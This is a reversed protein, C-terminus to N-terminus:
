NEIRQTKKKTGVEPPVQGVFKSDLGIRRFISRLAEGDPVQDTFEMYVIDHNTDVKYRLGLIAELELALGMMKEPTRVGAAYVEVEVMHLHNGGSASFALRNRLIKGHRIGISEPVNREPDRYYGTLFRLFGGSSKFDHFDSIGAVPKNGGQHHCAAQDKKGRQSESERAREKSFGTM